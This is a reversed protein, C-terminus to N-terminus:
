PVPSLIESYWLLVAAPRDQACGRFINEDPSQPAEWTGGPPSPAPSVSLPPSSITQTFACNRRLIYPELAIEPIGRVIAGDGDLRIDYCYTDELKLTKEWVEDGSVYYYKTVEGTKGIYESVRPDSRGFGDILNIIRVKQGESYQPNMDFALRENSRM